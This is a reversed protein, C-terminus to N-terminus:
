VKNQAIGEICDRIDKEPNQNFDVTRTNPYRKTDVDEIYGNENIIKATATGYSKSLVLFARLLWNKKAQIPKANSSQLSLEAKNTDSNRLVSDLDEWDECNDNNSYRISIKIKVIGESNIIREIINKDKEINVAFSDEDGLKFKFSGILFKVIKTVDSKRVAFRHYKPYFWFEMYKPDLVKNPDIVAEELLNDRINLAWFDDKLFIANCFYGHYYDGEFDFARLLTSRYSNRSNIMVRGAMISYLLKVYEEPKQKETPYLVVNIFAMEVNKRKIKEKAM